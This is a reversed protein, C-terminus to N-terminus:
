YTNDYYNYGKVKNEIRRKITDGSVGIAQGAKTLSEYVIGLIEVKISNRTSKGRRKESIRLIRTGYTGNYDNTCWELNSMCNNEKNEDKHNVQPLNNPNPIFAKAVLRHIRYRSTKGDKKLTVMVYGKTDLNTSKICEPFHRDYERNSKPDLIHVVRDVSRVRGLNSIQYLGEFNEIDKWIETNMVVYINNFRVYTIINPAKYFEM